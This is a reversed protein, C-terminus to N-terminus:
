HIMYASCKKLNYVDKKGNGDDHVDISKDLQHDARTIQKSAVYATCKTYNKLDTNPLIDEYVPINHSEYELNNVVEM